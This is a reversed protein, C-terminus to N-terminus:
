ADEFGATRTSYLRRRRRKVYLAEYTLSLPYGSTRGNSTQDNVRCERESTSGYFISAGM